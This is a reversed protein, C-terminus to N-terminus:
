KRFVLALVTILTIALLVLLLPNDWLSQVPEPDPDSTNGSGGGWFTTVVLGVLSFIGM